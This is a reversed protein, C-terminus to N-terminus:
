GRADYWRQLPEGAGGGDEEALAAVDALLGFLSAERALAEVALGVAGKTVEIAGQEPLLEGVEVILDALQSQAKVGELIGSATADLDGGVHLGVEGATGLGLADTEGDCASEQSDEM